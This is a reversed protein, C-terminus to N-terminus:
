QDGRRRRRRAERPRGAGELFAGFRRELLVDFTPGRAAALWRRSTATLLDLLLEALFAGDLDRRLEGRVQGDTVVAALFGRMEADAAADADTLPGGGAAQRVVEQMLRRHRAARPRIATCLARLRGRVTRARSAQAESTVGASFRRYFEALLSAKTPFHNFVSARAMGARAAIADMTTADYGQAAFLDTAARYIRERNALARAQPRHIKPPSPPPPM